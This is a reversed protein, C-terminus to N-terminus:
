LKDPLESYNILQLSEPKGKCGKKRIVNLVEKISASIFIFLVLSAQLSILTQSRNMSSMVRIESYHISLASSMQVRLKGLQVYYQLPSFICMQPFFLLKEGLNISTCNVFLFPIYKLHLTHHNSITYM